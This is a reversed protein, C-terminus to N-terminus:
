RHTIPRINDAASRDVQLHFPDIGARTPRQDVAITFRGSPSQLHRSDHWLLTEDGDIEGFIGLDVSDDLPVETLHGHGDDRWKASATDLTVLFTGDPQAAATADVLRHDFLTITEFLDEILDHESSPIAERLHALLDDSTPYPPGAFAFEDFFARLARDVTDRGVRRDLEYLSLSAKSYHIYAQNEVLSLPQEAIREHGRRALYRDLHFRLFRHVSEPGDMSELIKMAAYQPLSEAIWTAGQVDAPVLQHNWWQHAVEHSLVAALWDLEAGDLDATFAWSESYAIVQAFSFAVKDHYSPVEVIRLQDHPYPGFRDTMYALSHKTVELFRDINFAHDPHHLVEIDIGQWRDRAVAWRGSLVPVLDVIPTSTVYRFIARDDEVRQEVLDGPAIAVQDAVTSLTLDL